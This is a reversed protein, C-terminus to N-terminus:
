LLIMDEEQKEQGYGSFPEGSLSHCAEAIALILRTQSNCLYSLCIDAIQMYNYVTIFYQVTSSCMISYEVAIYHM